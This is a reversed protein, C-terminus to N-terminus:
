YSPRPWVHSQHGWSPPPPPFNHMMGAMGCGQVTPRPTAMSVGPQGPPIMMSQQSLPVEPLTTPGQDQQSWTFNSPYQRPPPAQTGSGMPRAWVPFGVLPRPDNESSPPRIPSRSREMIVMNALILIELKITPLSCFFHFLLLSFPLVVPSFLLFPLLLLLLGLFSFSSLFFSLLVLSSLVFVFCSCSM